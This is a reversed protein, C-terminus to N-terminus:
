KKVECAAAVGYSRRCIWLGGEVKAWDGNITLVVVDADCLWSVVKGAPADRLNWCGTITASFPTPADGSTTPAVTHRAAPTPSPHQIIAVSATSGCALIILSIVCLTIYQRRYTM